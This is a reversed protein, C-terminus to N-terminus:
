QEGLDRTSVVAREARERIGRLMRQSGVFSILELRSWSCSAWRCSYGYRERVRLRTAGARNASQVSRAADPQRPGTPHCANPATWARQEQHCPTANLNGLVGRVGIIVDAEDAATPLRRGSTPGSRCVM